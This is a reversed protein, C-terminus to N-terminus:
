KDEALYSFCTNDIKRYDIAWSFYRKARFYMVYSPLTSGEKMLQEVVQYQTKTPKTKAINKATSFQGPSYIVKKLTSGWSGNSLRNLVVSGIALQCEYSEGRGELYILAALMEQEQKTLAIKHVKEEQTGNDVEDAVSEAIENDALSDERQDKQDDKPGILSESEVIPTTSENELSTFEEKQSDVTEVKNAEIMAIVPICSWSLFLLIALTCATVRIIKSMRNSM